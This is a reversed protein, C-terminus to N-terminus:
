GKVMINTRRKEREKVKMIYRVIKDRKKKEVEKRDEKKNGDKKQGM